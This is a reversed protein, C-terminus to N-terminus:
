FSCTQSEKLSNELLEVDVWPGKTGVMTTKRRRKRPMPECIQPENEELYINANKTEVM